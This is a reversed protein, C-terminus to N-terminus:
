TVFRDRVDADPLMCQQTRGFLAYRNRAILRYIADRLPKPLLRFLRLCRWLGEIHEAIYLAGDSEQLALGTQTLVIFSNLQTADIGHAAATDQGFQSQLSAFSFRKKRDRKIVFQISVSCLNCVGDFLILNSQRPTM